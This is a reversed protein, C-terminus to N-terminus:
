KNQKWLLCVFLKFVIAAIVAFTEQVHFVVSVIYVIAGAVIEIAHNSHHAWFVAPYALPLSYTHLTSRSQITIRMARQEYEIVKQKRVSLKVRPM